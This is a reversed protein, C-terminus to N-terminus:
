RDSQKESFEKQLSVDIIQTESPGLILHTIETPPGHIKALNSAWGCPNLDWALKQRPELGSM